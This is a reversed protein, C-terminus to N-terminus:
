QQLVDALDDASIQAASPHSTRLSAGPYYLFNAIVPGGIQNPLRLKKDCKELELHSIM